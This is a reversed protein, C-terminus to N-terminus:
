AQEKTWLIITEEDEDYHWWNESEEWQEASPTQASYYYRTANTLNNNSGISIGNWGSPMGKYYVTKLGSCSSFASRGISTVGAGITVSELGSCDYFANAPITKVNEGFEVTKLNPCDEFTSYYGGEATTCNEANWIVSTLGSCGVFM